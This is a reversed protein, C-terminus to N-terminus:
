GFSVSLFLRRCASQLEKADLITIVHNAVCFSEQLRANKREKPYHTLALDIFPCLPHLSHDTPHDCPLFVARLPLLFLFAFPPLLLLAFPLLLLVPESPFLLTVNCKGEIIVRVCVCMCVCVCVCVCVCSRASCSCSSRLFTSASSSAFSASASRVRMISSSRRLLSSSCARMFSSSSRRRWSSSKCRCACSASSRSRSSSSDARSSVVRFLASGRDNTSSSPLVGESPTWILEVPNRNSMPRTVPAACFAASISGSM